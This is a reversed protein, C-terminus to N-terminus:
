LSAVKEILAYESEDMTLGFHSKIQIWNAVYEATNYKPLWSSIDNGSKERNIAKSVAVLNAEIRGFAWLKDPPWGQAGSRWAESLPVIHDIEIQNPHTMRLGSYPCVWHGGVIKTGVIQVNKGDRILIRDRPTTGRDGAVLTSLGPGFADRTYGYMSDDKQVVLKLDGVSKIYKPAPTRRLPIRKPGPKRKLFLKFRKKISKKIERIVIQIFFTAIVGM